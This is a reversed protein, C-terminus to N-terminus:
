WTLAGSLGVAEAVSAEQICIAQWCTVVTCHTISAPVTLSAHISVKSAWQYSVIHISCEALDSLRFKWSAAELLKIRRQDVRKVLLHTPAGGTLIIAIHVTCQPWHTVCSSALTEVTEVVGHAKLTVQTHRPVKSIWSKTNGASTIFCEWMKHNAVDFKLFQM